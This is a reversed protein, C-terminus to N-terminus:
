VRAADAIMKRHRDESRPDFVDRLWDGLVNVAVVVLFIVLGPITTLWWAVGLYARGDALMGGWTPTEASVGLGLFALSAQALIVAGLDITAIVIITPMVNPLIHGVMIAFPSAGLARASAVYDRERLSLTEARVPRAFAVWGALILAIVLKDLGNGLMAVLAVAFVLFPFALWIDALRMIAVDVWGGVYGSLLGLLVGLVATLLVVALGVWLSIQAGHVLRSLVDRGLMDTGLPHGPTLPPRLRMTLAQLDPDHPALLPAFLGTIIFALLILLAFTASRTLQSRLDAIASFM